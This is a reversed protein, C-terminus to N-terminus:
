YGIKLLGARWWDSTQGLCARGGEGCTRSPAWLNALWGDVFSTLVWTWLKLFDIFHAMHVQTAAVLSGYGKAESVSMDIEELRCQLGESSGERPYSWPIKNQLTGSVHYFFEDIQESRSVVFFVPKRSILFFFFLYRNLIEGNYIRKYGGRGGM